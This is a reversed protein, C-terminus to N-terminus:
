EVVSFYEVGKLSDIIGLIEQETKDYFYIENEQKALKVKLVAFKKMKYEQPSNDKEEKRSKYRYRIM